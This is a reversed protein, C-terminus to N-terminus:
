INIVYTITKFMAYYFCFYWKEEPFNFNIPVSAISWKLLLLFSWLSSYAFKGHRISLMVHNRRDKRTDLFRIMKRPWHLLHHLCHCFNQNDLKYMPGYCNKREKKKEKKSPSLNVNILSLSVVLTYTPWSM